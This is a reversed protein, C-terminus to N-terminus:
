DPQTRFKRSQTYHKISILHQAEQKLGCKNLMVWRRFILTGLYPSWEGSAVVNFYIAEDFFERSQRRLLTQRNDSKTRTTLMLYCNSLEVSLSSAYQSDHRNKKFTKIGYKLLSMASFIHHQESHRRGINVVARCLLRLEIQTCGSTLDIAFCAIKDAMDLQNEACLLESLHAIRRAIESLKEPDQIRTSIIVAQECLDFSQQFLKAPVLNMGTTLKKLVVTYVDHEHQRAIEEPTANAPFRQSSAERVPVPQL